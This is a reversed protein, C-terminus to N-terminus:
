MRGTSLRQYYGYLGRYFTVKLYIYNNNAIEESAKFDKLFIQVVRDRDEGLMETHKWLLQAIRKAETAPREIINPDTRLLRYLEQIRKSREASLEDQRKPTAFVHARRYMRLARTSTGRWLASVHNDFIDPNQSPKTITNRSEATASPLIYSSLFQLFSLYLDEEDLDKLQESASKYFQAHGHRGDKEALQGIRAFTGSYSSRACIRAVDIAGYNWLLIGARKGEAAPDKEVEPDSLMLRLLPGLSNVMRIYAQKREQGQLTSLADPYLEFFKIAQEPGFIPAM